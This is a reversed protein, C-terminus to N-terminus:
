LKYVKSISEAADIEEIYMDFDEVGSSGLFMMGLIQLSSADVFFRLAFFLNMIVIWAM